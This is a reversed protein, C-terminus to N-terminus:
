EYLVSVVVFDSDVDVARENRGVTTGSRHVRRRTIEPDANTSIPESLKHALYVVNTDVRAREGRALDLREVLRGSVFPRLPKDMTATTPSPRLQRVVIRVFGDGFWLAM